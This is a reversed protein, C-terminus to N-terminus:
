ELVGALNLIEEAAGPLIGLEWALDLMTYRARYQPGKVLAEIGEARTRQLASLTHPVGAALFPERVLALSPVYPELTMWLEDWGDLIGRIYAPLELDPVRKKRVVENFMEGSPGYVRRNESELAEVSPRSRQIAAPDIRRVDYQRMYNYFTIMILTGVGVQAGHLNKPIGRIHTLLDWFHSIVHEAGSSPSTEGNLVTMSLGSMLVAESLHALADPQRQRIAGASTLYLRENQACMQFPVPCFYAQKLRHGLMWDANCIARAALDGIGAHIMDMPADIQIDVDLMVSSAPDLLRSTKIDNETMTATISTYANMSPATGYILYPKGTQTAIWKTLDCIVGSGAGILIEVGPDLSAAARNGLGVESDLHQGPEGMPLLILSLGSQRLPRIVQDQIISQIEKDYVLCALRPEHGLIRTLSAPISNVLGRGVQMAGIPIKHHRGCVPCLLDTNALGASDRAYFDSLDTLNKLMIFNYRQSIPFLPQSRHDPILFIVFNKVAPVTLPFNQQEIGRDL